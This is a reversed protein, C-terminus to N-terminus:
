IDALQLVCVSPDCVPLDWQLQDDVVTFGGKL